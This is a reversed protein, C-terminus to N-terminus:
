LRLGPPLPYRCSGDRYRCVGTDGVKECVADHAAVWEAYLEDMLERVKTGLAWNAGRCTALHWAPGLGEHGCDCMRNTDVDSAMSWMTWAGEPITMEVVAPEGEENSM